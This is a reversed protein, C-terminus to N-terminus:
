IRIRRVGCSFLCKIRIRSLKRQANDFIVSLTKIKIIIHRFKRWLANPTNKHDSSLSNLTKDPNGSIGTRAPVERCGWRLFSFLRLFIWLFELNSTHYETKLNTLAESRLIVESFDMFNWIVQITSLRWIQWRRLDWFLRLFIWLFELNSTHYETKLNTLAESRTRKQPRGWTTIPMPGAIGLGLGQARFVLSYM